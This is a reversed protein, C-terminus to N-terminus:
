MLALLEQEHPPMELLRLLNRQDLTTSEYLKMVRDKPIEKTTRVPKGDGGPYELTRVFFRVNDTDKDLWSSTMYKHISGKEVMFDRTGRIQSEGVQRERMADQQISTNLDCLVFCITVTYGFQKLRRLVRGCTNTPDKGTGDFLINKNEKLALLFNEHNLMNIYDNRGHKNLALQVDADNNTTSKARLKKYCMAFMDDPNITVYTYGEKLVPNPTLATGTTLNSPLERNENLGLTFSKGCGPPGVTIIAHPSTSNGQKKFINENRFEEIESYDLMIDKM